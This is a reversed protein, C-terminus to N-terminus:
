LEVETEYSIYGFVTVVTFKVLMKTGIREFEFGEVSVIRDDCLLSETIENKVKGMAKVYGLNMASEFDTGYAHPFVPYKYRQTILAMYIAQKVAEKGEILEGIEKKEFDIKYTKDAARKTNEINFATSKPLM